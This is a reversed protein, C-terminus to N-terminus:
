PSEHQTGFFKLSTMNTFGVLYSASLLLILLVPAFLYEPVIRHEEKIGLLVLCVATKYACLSLAQAKPGFVRPADFHMTM